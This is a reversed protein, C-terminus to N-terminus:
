LGATFTIILSLDYELSFAGNAIGYIYFIGDGEMQSEIASLNQIHAMGDSWDLFISDGAAVVPAEFIKTGLSRVQDITTLSDDSIWAEAFADAQGNNVVFGTLTIADISKINDKHDEYDGETNLDVKRSDFLVNSSTFGDIDFVLVFTGTGICGVISAPILLTAVLLLNRKM